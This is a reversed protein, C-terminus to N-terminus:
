PWDSLPELMARGVFDIVAVKCAISCAPTM